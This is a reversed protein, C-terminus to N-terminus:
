QWPPRRCIVRKRIAHDFDDHIPNEALNGSTLPVAGSCTEIETGEQLVCVTRRHLMRVENNADVDRRGAKGERLEGGGVATELESDYERRAATTEANPRRRPLGATAALCHPIAVVRTLEGVTIIVFTDTGFLKM